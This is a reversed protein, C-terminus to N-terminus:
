IAAPALSMLVFVNALLVIDRPIFKMSTRAFTLFATAAALVATLSLKTLSLTNMAPSMPGM